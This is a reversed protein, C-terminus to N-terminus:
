NCDNIWLVSKKCVDMQEDVLRGSNGKCFFYVWNLIQKFFEIWKWCKSLKNLNLLKIM